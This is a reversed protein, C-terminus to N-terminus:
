SVFGWIYIKQIRIELDTLASIDQSGLLIEILSWPMGVKLNKIQSVFPLVSDVINRNDRYSPLGEQWIGISLPLKGSRGLWMASLHYHAFEGFYHRNLCMSNWLRPTSLVLVRWPHCVRALLMPASHASVAIFEDDPLCQVFFEEWIELPIQQCPSPSSLVDDENRLLSQPLARIRDV